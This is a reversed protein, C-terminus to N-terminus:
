SDAPDARQWRGQPCSESAVVTKGGPLAKGRVLMGVLCGCTNAEDDETLMKGCYMAKAQVAPKGEYTM